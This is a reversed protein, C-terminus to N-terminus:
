CNAFNVHAARRWVVLILGSLGIIGVLISAPEPVPVTQVLNINTLGNSTTGNVIMMIAGVNSFDAGTGFGVTFSSYPFNVLTTPGAPILQTFTSYDFNLNNRFVSVTLSVPVTTSINFQVPNHGPNALITCFDPLLDQPRYGVSLPHM